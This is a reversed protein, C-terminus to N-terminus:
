FAENIRIMKTAVHNNHELNDGFVKLSTRTMQNNRRYKETTVQSNNNLSCIIIKLMRNSRRINNEVDHITIDLKFSCIASNMKIENKMSLNKYTINKIVRMYM